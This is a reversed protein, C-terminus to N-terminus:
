SWEVERGTRPDIVRDDASKVSSWILWGIMMAAGIAIAIGPKLGFPPPVTTWILTALGRFVMWGAFGWVAVGTIFFLLHARFFRVLFPGTHAGPAIGARMRAYEKAPGFAAHPDEGTEALHSEVEAIIDGIAPGSVDLMRLEFALDDVYSDTNM